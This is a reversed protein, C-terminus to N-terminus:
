KKKGEMVEKTTLNYVIRDQVAGGVLGGAIM